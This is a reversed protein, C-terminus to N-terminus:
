PLKEFRENWPQTYWRLYDGTHASWYDEDHAGQNFNWEYPVAYRDLLDIYTLTYQLFWDKDGADLFLRPIQGPPITELWIPLLRDDGTFPPTSHAGISGFVDWIEFGIHLAWAGGRSLGGLARCEREACTNFNQDIWPVLEKALITGFPEAYINAYTNVELPMVILFPAAERAQIMTEATEDLGMRDWQDDNYTQGHIIYLVPYVTDAQVGYCPPLYIRFDLPAGSEAAPYVEVRGQEGACPIPTPTFTITPTFTASPTVSPATTATSLVPRFPTPTYPNSSNPGPVIGVLPELNQCGTLTVALISCVAWLILLNRKKM